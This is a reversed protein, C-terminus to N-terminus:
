LPVTNCFAIVGLVAVLSGATARASVRERKLLWVLPIAFVPSLSGLTLCLSLPIAFLAYNSGAPSLFTVFIVGAAVRIWSQSSMAPMAHWPTEGLAYDAEVLSRPRLAAAPRPWALAKIRYALFVCGLCAAAFGFRFGGILWPGLGEGFRKTLVTGFVDLIVTIVALLYGLLREDPEKSGVNEDTERELSVILVGLVACAMSAVGALTAREGFVAGGAAAAVFPKLSDVLLVRRAGLLKISMLWVTDGIVIGVLSSACLAAVAQPSLASLLDALGGCSLAAVLLFLPTALAAKLLNLAFISGRWHKDWLILGVTALLPAALASLVGGAAGSTGLAAPAFGAATGRSSAAFGLVLAAGAARRRHARLGHRLSRRLIM